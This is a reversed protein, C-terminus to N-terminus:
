AAGKQEQNFCNLSRAVLYRPRRLVEQFTRFVYIGIGGLSFMTAGLSFVVLLALMTVGPPAPTSGFAYRATAVVSFLLCAFMVVAGVGLLLRHPLDTYTILSDMALALRKAFTYSSKGHARLDHAVEVVAHPFGIYSMLPGFLINKEQFAGLSRLVRRSFARFAGVDRPVDVATISSFVSYYLRSTTRVLFPEPPGKKVTFVIDVDGSQLADILRPIEEPRDQLDSDMQVVYRGAAQDFGAAVAPHQGFNRSLRLGKVRADRDALRTIVEWAHDPSGDDIFIIEFTLGAGDLASLTRSYLLNLCDATKYVPLVVSV